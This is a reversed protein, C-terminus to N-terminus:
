QGVPRSIRWGEDQRLDESGKAIFAYERGDSGRLTIKKPKQKSQTFITANTEFSVIKAHWTPDPAQSLSDYQGPIELNAM